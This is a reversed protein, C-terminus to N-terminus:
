GCISADRRWSSYKTHTPTHEGHLEHCVDSSGHPFGPSQTKLYKRFTNLMPAPAWAELLLYVLTSCVSSMTAEKGGQGTGDM